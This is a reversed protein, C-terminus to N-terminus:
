WMEVTIGSVRLMDSDVTALTLGRQRALAAIWCDNRQIIQGKTTLEAVIAGYLQATEVNPVFIRRKYRRLFEDYMDLFKTSQHLSAYKYAGFYLEGIVIIPVFIRRAQQALKDLTLPDDQAVRGAIATDLLYDTAV